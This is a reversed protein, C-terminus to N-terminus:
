RANKVYTIWTYIEQAKKLLEGRIMVQRSPDINLEKKALEVAKLWAQMRIIIVMNNNKM